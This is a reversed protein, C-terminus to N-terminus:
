WAELGYGFVKGVHPDFGLLVALFIATLRKKGEDFEITGRHGVEYSDTSVETWIEAFGGDCGHWGWAASRCEDCNGVPSGNAMQM